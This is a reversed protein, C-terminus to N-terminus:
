KKLAKTAILWVQSPIGASQFKTKEIIEELALELEVIRPLVFPIPDSVSPQMFFRQCDPNQCVGATNTPQGCTACFFM